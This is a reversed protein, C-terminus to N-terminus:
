ATKAARSLKMVHDRIMVLATQTSRLRIDERRGLFTNKDVEVGNASALSIYVLGVPKEKSGGDPGAIGTIGVALDTKFRERAGRAMAEAVEHSVAGHAAILDPPVGVLDTKSENSYTVAGAMLVSSSGPVATVRGALLGGTCSEATSLTLGHEKLLRVVGFELPEDDYGYVYRKLREEVAASREDVLGLAEEESMARATVRIHVEGTKAYPAVSPNADMMLDALREEVHSEGMGCIRLVRSRIVEGNTLPRLRPVVENALMPLLEGPPGPMAVAINGNNEFWLGPATGNANFLPFGKSPVLAQKLTSDAMRINRSSFFERLRDAIAEDPHLEDGMVEALVERTLDDMTPGLGGIAVLLDNQDLAAQFAAIMRERNDGVTTRRYVAIGLDSLARAIAAANTDVIQGLLLETGVSVIEARM